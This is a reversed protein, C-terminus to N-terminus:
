RQNNQWRTPGSYHTLTGRWIEQRINSNFEDTRILSHVYIGVPLRLLMSNPIVIRFVGNAPNLITINSADGEDSSLSIFVTADEARARVHMRLIDGTLDFANYASDQYLFTRDFAIDSYTDINVIM